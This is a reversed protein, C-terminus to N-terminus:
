KIRVANEPRAKLYEGKKFAFHGSEYLKGDITLIVKNVNYYRGFTDAVCDLIMGEFGSGANMETVFAKNLDIYVMGDKNLYLSNITTNKSFVKGYNGGTSEKYAAELKKKTVDNTRFSIDKEKYYIKGNNGNPYFFSIKQVFSVNTEIKKLSSSVENGGSTFVSKILGVDRAYYNVTKSDKSQTTVEIAKYSGSPTTVNVDVGTITRTSSDKLRWSTGKQLPEMLEVEEATNSAKLFNERFYTEARSLLRTLKGNKLEYVQVTETGGNNVRLQIRGDSIYDILANYSAYENGKGEYVYRVNEKMPFYSQLSRSQVATTTNTTTNTTTGATGTTSVASTNTGTTANKGTNAGPRACAALCSLSLVISIVLISKKM